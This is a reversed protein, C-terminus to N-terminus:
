KNRSSPSSSSNNTLAQTYFLRITGDSLKAAGAEYALTSMIVSSGGWTAGEDTSRATFIRRDTLNNGGDFDRIYYMRWDGSNLKVLRPVGLYTTSSGDVHVTTENAWGLGDASTASHIRYAGTTSYISYLMRFGGANLALLDCGTISSASVSPVTGTDLRVGAEAAWAVGDGSTASLVATGSSAQPFGSSIATIYYMRLNPAYAAVVTNGDAPARTFAQVTASALSVVNQTDFVPVARAPLASAWLLALAGLSKRVLALKDPRQLGKIRAEEVLAASRTLGERRYVLRVPRRSRTYAAGRGANHATIRALVDKAVGTYLSRDACRVLYM